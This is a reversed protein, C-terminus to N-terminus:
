SFKVNEIVRHLRYNLIVEAPTYHATAPSTRVVPSGIETFSANLVSSRAARSMLSGSTFTLFGCWLTLDASLLVERVIWIRKWYPHNRLYLLGRQPDLAKTGDEKKSDAKATVHLHETDGNRLALARIDELMNGNPHGLWALVQDARSFINAM